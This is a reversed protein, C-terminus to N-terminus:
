RLVLTINFLLFHKSTRMTRQCFCDYIDLNDTVMYVFQHLFILLPRLIPGAKIMGAKWRAWPKRTLFVVNEHRDNCPFYNQPPFFKPIYSLSKISPPKCCKTQHNMSTRNPSHKLFSPAIPSIQFLLWFHLFRYLLPEIM